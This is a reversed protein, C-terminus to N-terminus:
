TRNSNTDFLDRFISAAGENNNNNNINQRTDANSRAEVIQQSVTSTENPVDLKINFKTQHQQQQKLRSTKKISILSSYIDANSSVGFMRQIDQTVKDYEYKIRSSDAVPAIQKRSRSTFEGFPLPQPQPQPANLHRQSLSKGLHRQTRAGTSTTTTAMTDSSTYSSTSATDNSNYANSQGSRIVYKFSGFSPKWTGMLEMNHLMLQEINPATPPAQSVDGGTSDAATIALNFTSSSKKAPPHLPTTPALQLTPLTDLLTSYFIDRDSSNHVSVLSHKHQQQHQHQQHQHQQNRHSPTFNSATAHPKCFKPKLQNSNLRDFLILITMKRIFEPWM